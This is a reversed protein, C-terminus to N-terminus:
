PKPRYNPRSGRKRSKGGGSGAPPPTPTSAPTTTTSGPNKSMESSQRIREELAKMLDDKQPDSGSAAERITKRIQAGADSSNNIGKALTDITYEHVNSVNTSTLGAFIKSLNKLAAQSEIKVKVQGNQVVNDVSADFGQVRHFKSEAVAGDRKGQVYGYDKSKTSDTVANGQADVGLSTARIKFKGNVMEGKFLGAYNTAGGDATKGLGDVMQDIYASGMKQELESLAKEIDGYDANVSRGLKTSLFNAQSGMLSKSDLDAKVEHPTIGATQLAKQEGQVGFLAGRNLNAALLNNLEKQLIDRLDHNGAKIASSIRESVLEIKAMSKDYNAVAARDQAVKAQKALEEDLFGGGIGGPVNADKATAVQRAERDHLERKIEEGQARANLMDKTRAYFDQDESSLSKLANMEAKNGAVDIDQKTGGKARAQERAAEVAKEVPHIIKELEAEQKARKLDGGAKGAADVRELRVEAETKKRSIDLAGLGRTKKVRDEQVKAYETYKEAIDNKRGSSEILSAGMSAGWGAITNLAGGKKSYEQAKKELDSATNNQWMEIPASVDGKWLGAVKTGYRKVKGLGVDAAYGLASSAGSSAKGYLWQGVAVGSAITAVRKGFNLGAAMLNGSSGGIKSAVQAGAFLLAIGIIFKAMNDWVLIDTLGASQAKQKETDQKSTIFNDQSDITNTDGSKIKSDEPINSYNAIHSGLNGSGASLLALWLFFMIIPGTVLNDGLESWWQSAMSQTKPLVSLVFALPSLIILIWLRVVRGLLIFLYAGFACTILAAFAAAAMAASFIGTAVMDGPGINNNFKELKDLGFGNIYFTGATAAVANTFASMFVQSADILLGCITRSFNILVAAFFFKPLLKKWEYQEIGLITGFAIILLIVVFFMNTVNLVVTWGINVPTSSLFGNYASIEIIFSVIFISVKLLLRAMTLLLRALTRIFWDGFGSWDMIDAKAPHFVLLSGVTVVLFFLGVGYFLRKHFYFFSLLSSIKARIFSSM